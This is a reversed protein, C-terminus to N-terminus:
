WKRQLERLRTAGERILSTVWVDLPEAVAVNRAELKMALDDRLDVAIEAVARPRMEIAAVFPSLVAGLDGPEEIVRRWDSGTVNLEHSPTDVSIALLWLLRALRGDDPGWVDFQRAFANLGKGVRSASDIFLRATRRPSRPSLVPQEKRSSGWKADPREAAVVPTVMSRVVSDLQSDRQAAVIRKAQDDHQPVPARWLLRKTEEWPHRELLRQLNM